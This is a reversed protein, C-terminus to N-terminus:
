FTGVVLRAGLCQCPPNKLMADDPDSLKAGTMAAKDTICLLVSREWFDCAWSYRSLNWFDTHVM